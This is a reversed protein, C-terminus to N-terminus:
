YDGRVTARAYSRATSAGIMDGDLTISTSIARSLAQITGASLDMPGTSGVHGGMAYGPMGGGGRPAPRSNRLSEMYGPKPLRTRQDVGHKPVVYEGAHVIGAPKLWHGPGTYGGSSFMRGGAAGRSANSVYGGASHGNGFLGAVWNGFGSLARSAGNWFGTGSRSGANWAETTSTYKFENGIIQSANLGSDFRKNFETANAAALTRTEAGTISKGDRLKKLIQDTPDNSNLFTKNFDLGMSTALTRAEQNNLPQGLKVKKTIEGSPDFSNYLVSNMNKAMSGALAYVEGTIPDEAYHIGDIITSDIAINDGIGRNLDHAGDAGVRELAGTVDNKRYAIGDLIVEGIAESERFTANMAEAGAWGIVGFDNRVQQEINEAEDAIKQGFNSWDGTEFAKGLAAPLAGMFGVIEAYAQVFWHRINWGARQFFGATEDSSERSGSILDDFMSPDYIDGMGADFGDGFGGGAAKGAARADAEARANFEALAQLAPNPNFELTVDKPVGAVVTAMDEFAVAYKDLEGGSYGLEIGQRRFEDNLRTIESQIYEQSAGSAALSNIYAEYDQVLSRMADRNEIAAKSNGELSKSAGEKAERLKDDTDALDARLQSARLEDDYAEAISLWYAKLSRDATLQRISAQYKDSEERLKIWQMTIKDMAAGSDFRLSYSRSLVGSLDQAYDTLLRLEEAANKASGALGGGGGGGDLMESLGEVDGGAGQTVNRAQETIENYQELNLTADRASGGMGILKEALFGAGVALLGVGTTALVRRFTLMAGTAVNASRAVGIFGGMLGRLSGATGVSVIGATRAAVQYALLAGQARMVMARFVLMSGTVTVLATGIGLIKGAWPNRDLFEIFGFILQNVVGLLAAMSPVAGGSVADIVGNLGNLFIQWQSSLNQLTIDYQRNLEAGQMFSDHAYAMHDRFSDLNQSLRGFTDGVRLQALGLADMASTVDVSDLNNLNELFGDLIEAGQGARVMGELEGATVGVVTAFNELDQGGSAVAKRLTQFYTTLSGRSREPPVRLASLAGALGVIQDASMGAGASLAAIERSVSLIEKETANSKISVYALSSGLNELYDASLGTQAMFGGFQKSVDEISMGSVSAFRAITDTFDILQDEAIGMQNGITAIESLEQFTLPIQGTMQVLSNRIGDIAGQLEGAAFEAPDLTREVNSFATQFQAGVVVAGIGLGSMVAGVQAYANSLDYLAYRQSIIGGTGERRVNQLNRESAAVERSSAQLDKNLRIREDTLAKDGLGRPNHSDQLAVLAKRQEEYAETVRREAAEERQAIAAADQGQKVNKSKADALASMTQRESDNLRIDQERIRVQKQLEEGLEAISQKERNHAQYRQDISSTANAGEAKQQNQFKKLEQASERLRAALRPHKDAIADIHQGLKDLSKGTALAEDALRDFEARAKDAGEVHINYEIFGEEIAM